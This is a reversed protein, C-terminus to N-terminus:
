RSPRGQEYAYAIVNRVLDFYVGSSERFASPLQNFMVAGSGLVRDQIILTAKAEDEQDHALVVQEPSWKQWWGYHGVGKGGIPVPEALIVHVGAEGLRSRGYGPQFDGPPAVAVSKLFEETEPQFRIERAGTHYDFLVLGGQELHAKIAGCLDPDAFLPSEDCYQGVYLMKSRQLSEVITANLTRPTYFDEVLAFRESLRFLPYVNPTPPRRGNNNFVVVHELPLLEEAGAVPLGPTLILAAAILWRGPMGIEKLSVAVFDRRKPKDSM